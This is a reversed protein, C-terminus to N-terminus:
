SAFVQSLRQRYDFLLEFIREKLDSDGVETWVVALGHNALEVAKVQKPMSQCFETMLEFAKTNEKLEANEPLQWFEALHLGHAYDRRTYRGQVAGLNLKSRDWPLLYRAWEDEGVKAMSVHIGKAAAETRWHALKRQRKSPQLWLVPGIMLAFVSVLVFVLTWTM